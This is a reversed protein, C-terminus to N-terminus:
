GIAVEECADGHATVGSFMGLMTWALWEGNGGVTSFVRSAGLM